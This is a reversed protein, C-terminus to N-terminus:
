PFLMSQYGYYCHVESHLVPCYRNVRFIEHLNISYNKLETAIHLLIQSLIASINGYFGYLNIDMTVTCKYTHSLDM